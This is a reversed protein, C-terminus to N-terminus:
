ASVANVASADYQPNGSPREVTASLVKGKADVKVRVHCVHNIRSANACGRNPRVAPM